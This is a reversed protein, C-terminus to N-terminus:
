TQFGRNRKDYTISRDTINKAKGAIKKYDYIACSYVM